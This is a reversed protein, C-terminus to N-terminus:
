RLIFYLNYRGTCFAIHSAHRKRAAWFNSNFDSIFSGNIETVFSYRVTVIIARQYYRNIASINVTQIIFGGIIKCCSNFGLNVSICLIIYRICIEASVLGLFILIIGELDAPFPIKLRCIKGFAILGIFLIGYETIRSGFAVGSCDSKLNYGGYGLNVLRYM